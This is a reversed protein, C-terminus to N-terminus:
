VGLERRAYESAFASPEIGVCETWGRREAEALLFGVWCGVDLLKSKAPAYREIRALVGAFSYRQGAEEEVYADSAAGAYAADLEEETPFRDLQMHTCALCRLINGLATGFEMTTPVLGAAGMGGAVSM